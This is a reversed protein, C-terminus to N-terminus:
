SATTDRARPDVESFGTVIAQGVATGGRGAHLRHRGRRRPGGLLHRAAIAVVTCGFVAAAGQNTVSVALVLLLAVVLDGRDLVRVHRVRVPGERVEERRM